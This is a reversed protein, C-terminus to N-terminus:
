KTSVFAKLEQRPLVDLKTKTSANVLRRGSQEYACLAEAYSKESMALDPAHWAQNAFYNKDFHNPDHMQGQLIKHPTGSSSFYHDCGVLAVESFGMFYALQLAAYTVTGGQSVFRAPRKSFGNEYCCLHIHKEGFPLFQRAHVANLFIPIDCQMYFDANQRIVLNNIAVICDPRFDTREFLLNIKNLGFCFVGQLDEFDVDNLSPGNCLIVAKQGAFANDYTAIRRISARGSSTSLFRLYRLAAFFRYAFGSKSIAFSFGLFQLKYM